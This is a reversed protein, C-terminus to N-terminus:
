IQLLRSPLPATNIRCLEAAHEARLGDYDGKPFVYIHRPTFLLNHPQNDEQMAKVCAEVVRLAATPFAYCFGPFGQPQLCRIGQVTPGNVLPYQTVPPFEDILHCHFHNASASACWSNFYACFTSATLLEAIASLHAGTM